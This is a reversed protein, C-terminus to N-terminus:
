RSHSLALARLVVQAPEFQDTKWRTEALCRVRLQRYAPLDKGAGEPLFVPAKMTGGSSLLCRTRMQGMVLRKQYHRHELLAREAHAEIKQVSIARNQALADRLQHILSEVVSTAGQVWPMKFTEHIADVTDKLKKDLTVLPSAAAVLAKLTEVEDFPFELEGAVLVLPPIFAGDEGVADRMAGDLDEVRIPKGRALIALVDRRDKASPRKGPSLDDDLDEDDPRPKVESLIDKWAAHKRIRPLATPSFWLLEVIERTDPRQAAGSRSADVRPKEDDSSSTHSTGAAPPGLGGVALQGISVKPPEGAPSTPGGGSGLATLPTIMLPPPSVPPPAQPKAAIAPEALMPMVFLTEQGLSHAATSTVAGILARAADPRGFPLAADSAVDPTVVRASAEAGAFPMVPPSSTDTSLGPVLTMSVIADTAGPPAPALTQDVEPGSDRLSGEDGELTVHVTGREQPQRLGMRGRWVLTAIGRDTDIWLTDAVLRIEEREGTARDAVARPRIGPLRTVLRPHEPLLNELVIREDPRLETPQQDPPAVNFYSYDFDDSLPRHEWGQGTFTAAHRHLKQMRGPWRPAIPGFGIPGFTDGRGTVYTGPPQLNPVPVMGYRDPSADFRMGVPNQTDPGGAAREWRLPMKTIRQGELLQGDQRRIGRDCWVEIVKEVDAVVLRAVFSRVPKQAPAHGHGILVVDPRPKYAVRDSAAHLSRATDDNWFEDEDSLPEQEPALVAQDPRLRYTAKCAVTLAYTGTRPQWTLGSTRLACLSVVEM